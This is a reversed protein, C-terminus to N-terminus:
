LASKCEALPGNRMHPLVDKARDVRAPDAAKQECCCLEGVPAIPAIGPLCEACALSTPISGFQTAEAVFAVDFLDNFREIPNWYAVMIFTVSVTIPRHRNFCVFLRNALSLTFSSCTHRNPNKRQSTPPEFMGRQPAIPIVFTSPFRHPPAPNDTIRSCM